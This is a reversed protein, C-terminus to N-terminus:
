LKFFSALYSKGKITKHVLNGEAWLADIYADGADRIRTFGAGGDGEGSSQFYDANWVACARAGAGQPPTTSAPHSRRGCADTAKRRTGSSSRRAVLTTGEHIASNINAKHTEGTSRFGLTSAWPQFGGEALYQTGTFLSPKTAPLLEVRKVGKSLINTSGM